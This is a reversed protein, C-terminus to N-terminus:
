SHELCQLLKEELKSEILSVMMVVWACVLHEEFCDGHMAAVGTAAYEYLPFLRM